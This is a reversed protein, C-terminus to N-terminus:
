RGIRKVRVAMLGREGDVINFSVRDGEKLRARAPLIASQHFFIEKDGLYIFGYCYKPNYSKIVGEM